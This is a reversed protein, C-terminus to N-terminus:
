YTKERLSRHGVKPDIIRFGPVKWQGRIKGRSIESKRFSRIQAELRDIKPRNRYKPKKYVCAPCEKVEESVWAGCVECQWKHNVIKKPPKM